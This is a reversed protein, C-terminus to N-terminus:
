HKKLDSFSVSLPKYKEWGQFDFHWWEFPYSQFGHRTMVKQLIDRNYRAEPTGGAYSVASRTSFEDFNSPMTLNNGLKDILTVDVATGRTHRGCNVSPNSVFREDHILDWMMQQIPLPRYGDYIKLGMGKQALDKQIEELYPILEKRIYAVPFSYLKTGTFNFPTAYRIEELPARKMTSVDVLDSRDGGRLSTFVGFLLVFTFNTKM